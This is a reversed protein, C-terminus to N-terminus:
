KMYDNLETRVVSYCSEADPALEMTVVTMLEGEEFVSVTARVREAGTEADEFPKVSDIRATLPKALKMYYYGNLLFYEQDQSADYKKRTYDPIEMGKFVSDVTADAEELTVKCFGELECEELRGAWVCPIIREMWSLTLGNKMDCPGFRAFAEALFEIRATQEETLAAETQQPDGDANPKACGFLALATLAALVMLLMRKILNM